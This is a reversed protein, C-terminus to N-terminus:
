LHLFDFFVHWCNVDDFISDAQKVNCIWKSGSERTNKVHSLTNHSYFWMLVYARKHDEVKSSDTCQVLPVMCPVNTHEDDEESIRSQLFYKSMSNTHQISCIIAYWTIKTHKYDLNFIEILGKKSSKQSRIKCGRTTSQQTQNKNVVTNAASFIQNCNMVHFLGKLGM